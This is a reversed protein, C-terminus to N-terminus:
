GLYGSEKIHIHRLAERRLESPVISLYLVTGDVTQKCLYLIDEELAFQDLTARPYKSRPIRGGELIAAIEQWRAEAREMVKIEEKNKGLWKGGECGQIVRVPRSLQDAVVNRKGEKYEIKYCYDRMELIWRNIRPSKTKQRFVSVIPQHDTRVIFKSGWM